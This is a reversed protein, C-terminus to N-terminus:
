RKNRIIVVGSGGAGPDNGAGWSWGGGGGGGGTNAVGNVGNQGGGGGTGGGGEGGAGRNGNAGTAYFGGGGGGGSYLTGSSEGFERTTTHQGTGGYFGNQTVSAGDNGDSGGACSICGGGSGGNGGNGTNHSGAYTTGNSGGTASLISGFSSSGGSGGVTITYSTTTISANNKTATCGGGGGGGTHSTTGTKFSAGNGGGGVCFIDIGNAANGLDTLTLTGGTKFRIKWNGSSTTIEKNNDDVIEYDGTYTFTPITSAGTITATRSDVYGASNTVRCYVTTSGYIVNPVTYTSSTAGSIATGNKYWQYTYSAPVGPTAIRVECTTSYGTTVSMNQPYSANLIPTAQVTLTAVKSSVVGAKNAVNCYVSYTGRKSSTDSYTFVSSTAGSIKEGNVYWQYTYNKPSGDKQIQVSFTASKGAIVTANAPYNVNLEPLIYSNFSNFNLIM